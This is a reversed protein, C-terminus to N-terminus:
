PQQGQNGSTQGPGGPQSTQGQQQMGQNASQGQQQTGQQTQGQQQTGQDAPGQQQTGQQTESGGPETYYTGSSQGGPGGYQGPQQSDSSSGQRMRLQRRVRDLGDKVEAKQSPTMGGMTKQLLSELRLAAARGRARVREAAKAQLRQARRNASEIGGEADQVLGYYWKSMERDEVYELEDLRRDTWKAYADAKNQDGPVISLSAAEAVRKVTYLPNGPMAFASGVGTGLLLAMVVATVVAVRAFAPRVRMRPLKATATKKREVGTGSQRLVAAREMFAARLEDARGAVPLAPGGGALMKLMEAEPGEQGGLLSEGVGDQFRRVRRSFRLIDLKREDRM